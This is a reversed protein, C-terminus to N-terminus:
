GGKNAFLSQKEPLCLQLSTKYSFSYDETLKTYISEDFDLGM